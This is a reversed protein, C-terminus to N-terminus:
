RKLVQLTEVPFMPSPSPLTRGMMLVTRTINKEEFLEDKKEPSTTPAWSESRKALHWLAPSSVASPTSVDKDAAPVM